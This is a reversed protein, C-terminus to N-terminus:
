QPPSFGYLTTFGYNGSSPGPYFTWFLYKWSDLFVLKSSKRLFISRISSPRRKVSPYCFKVPPEVFQIKKQFANPYNVNEGIPSTFNNGPENDGHYTPEHILNKGAIEEMRRRFPCVVDGIHEVTADEHQSCGVGEQFASM